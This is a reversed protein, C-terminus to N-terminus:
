FLLYNIAQQLVYQHSGPSSLSPFIILQVDQASYKLSRLSRLGHLGNAAVTMPHQSNLCPFEPPQQGMQRGWRGALCGQWLLPLFFSFIYATSMHNNVVLLAPIVVTCCTLSCHALCVFEDAEAKSYM